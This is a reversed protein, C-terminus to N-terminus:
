VRHLWWAVGFELMEHGVMKGVEEIVDPDWTQALLTGIPIATAYQHYTTVNERHYDKKFLDGGLVSLLSFGYILGSENDVDYSKMLRLGAPGDAMSVAPVGYKETFRCSTEGAAGPVFIGTPVPENERINDQGKTIEGMLMAVLEDDSM